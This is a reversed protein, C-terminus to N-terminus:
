GSTDVAKTFIEPVGVVAAECEVRVLTVKMWKLRVLLRFKLESFRRCKVYKTSM